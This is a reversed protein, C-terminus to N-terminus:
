VKRPQVEKEESGARGFASSFRPRFRSKSKADRRRRTHRAM